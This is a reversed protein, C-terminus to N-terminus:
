SLPERSDARPPGTGHCRSGDGAAATEAVERSDRAAERSGRPQREALMEALREGDTAPYQVLAGCLGEQPTYTAYDGEVLTIGHGEARTRM